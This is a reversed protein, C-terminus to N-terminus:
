WGRHHTPTIETGSGQPLSLLQLIVELLGNGSHLTPETWKQWALISATARAKCFVNNMPLTSPTNQGHYLHEDEGNHTYLEKLMYKIVYWFMASCSPNIDLDLVEWFAHLKLTPNTHCDLASLLFSDFNPFFIAFNAPVGNLGVRNVWKNCEANCFTSNGAM